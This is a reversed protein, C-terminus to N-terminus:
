SPFSPPLLSQLLVIQLLRSSTDVLEGFLLFYPAITIGKRMRSRATSRKLQLVEILFILVLISLLVNTIFTVSTNVIYPFTEVEVVWFCTESLCVFAEFDPIHIGLAAIGVDHDLGGQVLVPYHGKLFDLLLARYAHELIRWEKPAIRRIENLPAPIILHTMNITGAVDKLHEKLLPSPQSEVTCNKLVPTPPHPRSPSSGAFVAEAFLLFVLRITTSTSM